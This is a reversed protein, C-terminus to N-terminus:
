WPPRSRCPSPAERGSTSTSWNTASVVSSAHASSGSRTIRCSWRSPRRIASAPQWCTATSSPRDNWNTPGCSTGTVDPVDDDLVVATSNVPPLVPPCTVVTGSGPGDRARGPKRDEADLGVAPIRRVGDDRDIGVGRDGHGRLDTEVDRVLLEHVGAPGSQRRVGVEDEPAPRSTVPQVARRVTSPSVTPLYLNAGDRQRRGTCTAHNLHSFSTPSRPQSGARRRRARPERSRRRTARSRRSQRALPPPQRRGPRRRRRRRSSDDVPSSVPRLRRRSRPPGGGHACEAALPLALAPVDLLTEIGPLSEGGGLSFSEHSAQGTLVRGPHLGVAGAARVAPLVALLGKRWTQRLPLSRWDRAADAARTHVWRAQVVVNAQYGGRAADYEGGCTVLNLVRSGQAAYVRQAPFQDNPYVRVSQM